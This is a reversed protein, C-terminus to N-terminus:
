TSTADLIESQDLADALYHRWGSQIQAHHGGIGVGWDEYYDMGTRSASGGVEVDALRLARFCSRSQHVQKVASLCADEDDITVQAVFERLMGCQVFGDRAGQHTRTALTM